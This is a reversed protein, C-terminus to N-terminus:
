SMSGTTRLFEPFESYFRPISFAAGFAAAKTRDRAFVAELSAGVVRRLERAHTESAVGAGILGFRVTQSNM